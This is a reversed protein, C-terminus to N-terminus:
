CRALSHLGCCLAHCQQLEQHCQRRALPRWDQWPLVQQPQGESGSGHGVACGLMLVLIVVQPFTLPCMDPPLVSKQARAGMPCLCPRGHQCSAALCPLNAATQSTHHNTPIQRDTTVNCPQSLTTLLSQNHYIQHSLPKASGCQPAGHEELKQVSGSNTTPSPIQAMTALTQVPM